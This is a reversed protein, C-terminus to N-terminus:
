AGASARRDVGDDTLTNREVGTSREYTRMAGLGLMGLLVPMMNSLDVVPLSSLVSPMDVGFVASLVYLSYTLMPSALFTWAFSLGCVWGIFPRWGAVFLSAHKAEEANVAIQALQGSKELEMLKLKAAMREEDSTFLSDVLDFLGQAIPGADVLSVSM